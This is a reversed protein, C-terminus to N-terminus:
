GAFLYKYKEKNFYLAAVKIEKGQPMLMYSKGSEIYGQEVKGTIILGKL